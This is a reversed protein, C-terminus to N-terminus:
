GESATEVGRRHGGEGCRLLPPPSAQVSDSTSCTVHYVVQAPRDPPVRPSERRSPAPRRIGFLRPSGPSRSRSPRGRTTPPGGPRWSAGRGTWPGGEGRRRRQGEPPPLGGRWGGGTSSCTDKRRGKFDNPMVHPLNAQPGNWKMSGM